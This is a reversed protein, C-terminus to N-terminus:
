IMTEQETPNDEGTVKAASEFRTYSKLFTLHVAVPAPGSRQKRITLKMQKSETSESEEADDYNELIWLVDADQGIARSERLKGDDNLQSLALVPIGLELAMGKIGRSIDAVEQQRSEIKRAGGIASLLQLYDVIVLKIGHQQKMRRAMSRLQMISLDSIDEIFIKARSLKGAASTMKPFDREALFGDRVNRLNIRSQSCIMRVVLSKATMELSFIGVPMGYNLAACEAINSALASKGSSPFGAVVIMEGDHLGGTLKDLDVLGTSIGDIQGRSNHLREIENIADSVLERMEKGKHTQKPMLALAEKEFTELIEQPSCTGEEYAMESFKSCTQIIGRLLKKGVVEDIHQNIHEATATADPLTQLYGFGGVEEFMSLSKLKGILSVLNVVKGEAYLRVMADYITQHRLDYFDGDGSLRELCIAMSENPNLLVCGLIAAEAEGAYPPLKDVTRM